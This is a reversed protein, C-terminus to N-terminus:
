KTTKYKVYFSPSGEPPEGRHSYLMTTQINSHGLWKQIREPDAGNNFANTTATSRATHPHVNMELNLGVSAAYRKVLYNIAGATIKRETILRGGKTIAPFLPTKPDEPLEAHELYDQLKIQSDPALQVWRTKEGKGM